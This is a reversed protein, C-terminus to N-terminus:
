ATTENEEEISKYYYYLIKYLERMETGTLTIGMKMMEHDESWERIDIKPDKGNWSVVNIEKKWRRGDRRSVSITGIHNIINYYFTRDM